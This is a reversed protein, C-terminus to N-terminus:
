WKLAGTCKNYLVTHLWQYTKEDEFPFSSKSTGYFPMLLADVSTFMGVGIFAAARSISFVYQIDHSCRVSLSRSLSRLVSRGM